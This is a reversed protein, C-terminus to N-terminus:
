IGGRESPLTVVEDPFQWGYPVNPLLSIGSEDGYLVDIAEKESLNEFEALCERKAEYIM